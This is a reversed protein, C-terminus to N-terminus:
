RRKGLQAERLAIYLTAGIIVAGGVLTWVSPIEAFILFGIVLAYILRSYEFPIVATAEGARLGFVM